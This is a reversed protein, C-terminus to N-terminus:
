NGIVVEINPIKNLERELHPRLIETYDAETMKEAAEGTYDFKKHHLMGSRSYAMWAYKREGMQKAKKILGARMRADIQINGGKDSIDAYPVSVTRQYIIMDDTQTGDDSSESVGLLANSLRATRLGLKQVPRTGGGRLMSSTMRMTWSDMVDKSSSGMATWVSERIKNMWSILDNESM